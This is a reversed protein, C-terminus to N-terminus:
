GGVRVALRYEMDLIFDGTLEIVNLGEIIQLFRKNWDSMLVRGSSSVIIENECDITITETTKCNNITIEENNTKNRIKINGNSLPTITFIPALIDEDFDSNFIFNFSKDSSLKRQKRIGTWAHNSDCIVDFSIGASMLGVNVKQPNILICYYCVDALDDQDVHLWHRKKKCLWKKIAREEYADFYTGDSKILTLKFKLPESKEIGHLSWRDQFMTKSTILSSSEDNSDSDNGFSGKFVGFEDSSQNAYIIKFGDNITM